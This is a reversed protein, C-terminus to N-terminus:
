INEETPVEDKRVLGPSITDYAKAYKVSLAVQPPALPPAAAMRPKSKEARIQGAINGFCNEGSVEWFEKLWASYFQLVGNSYRPASTM